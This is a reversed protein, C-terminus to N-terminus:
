NFASVSPRDWIGDTFTDEFGEEFPSETDTFVINGDGRSFQVLTMLKCSASAGVVFICEKCDHRQSVRGQLQEDPPLVAFWAENIVIVADVQLKRAYSRVAAKCREKETDDTFRLPMVHITRGTIFFAIPSVSGNTALLEKAKETFAHMETILQERTFIGKGQTTAQNDSM